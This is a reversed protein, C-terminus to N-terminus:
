VRIKIENLITKWALVRLSFDINFQFGSLKEM